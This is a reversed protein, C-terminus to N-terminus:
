IYPKECKGRLKQSPLARVDTHSASDIQTIRSCSAKSFLECLVQLTQSHEIVAGPLKPNKARCTLISGEDEPQLVLELRSKSM